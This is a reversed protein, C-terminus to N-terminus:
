KIKNISQDIKPQAPDESSCPPKRLNCRPPVVRLSHLAPRENRHSREPYHVPELASLSWHNHCMPKTAWCCTSDEQVLSRVWTGQMPLCIELWQGVLSTEIGVEIPHNAIPVYSFSTLIVLLVPLSAKVLKPPPPFFTALYINMNLSSQWQGSLHGLEQESTENSKGFDM